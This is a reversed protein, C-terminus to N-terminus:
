QGLLRINEWSRKKIPIELRDPIEESPFDPLFWYKDGKAAYANEKLWRAIDITIKMGKEKRSKIGLIIM